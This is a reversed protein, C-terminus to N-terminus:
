ILYINPTVVSQGQFLTQGLCAKCTSKKLNDTKETEEHLALCSEITTLDSQIM